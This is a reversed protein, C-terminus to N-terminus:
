TLEAATMRDVNGGARSPDSKCATNMRGNVPASTRSGRRAGDEGRGVAFPKIPMRILNLTEPGASLTGPACIRRLM